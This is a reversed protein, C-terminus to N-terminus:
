SCGQRNGPSICVWTTPPRSSSTTILDTHSIREVKCNGPSHRWDFNGRNSRRIPSHRLLAGFMMRPYPGLSCDGISINEGRFSGAFIREREVSRFTEDFGESRKQCTRYGDRIPFGSILSESERGRKALSFGGEEREWGGDRRFVMDKSTGPALMLTGRILPADAM